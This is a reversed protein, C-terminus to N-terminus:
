SFSAYKKLLQPMFFFTNLSNNFFTVLTIPTLCWRTLGYGADGLYFWNEFLPLIRRVRVADNLVRADHASGEWGALAMIFNLDFNCAGLVNQSVGKRGRFRQQLEPSVKAMIHTGDIAGLCYNFYPFYKDNNKIHDSLVPEPSNQWIDSQCNMISNIVEHVSSSIQRYGVQWITATTRFSNGRLTSLFIM